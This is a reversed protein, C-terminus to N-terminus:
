TTKLWAKTRSLAPQCDKAPPDSPAGSSAERMKKTRPECSPRPPERSPPAKRKQSHSLHIEDLGSGSPFAPISADVGQIDDLGASPPTALLIPGIGSAIMSETDVHVDITTQVTISDSMMGDTATGEIEIYQRLETTDFIDDPYTASPQMLVSGHTQLTALIDGLGSSANEAGSNPLAMPPGLRPSLKFMDMDELNSSSQGEGPEQDPENEECEEQETAAKHDEDQKVLGIGEKMAGDQAFVDAYRFQTVTPLLMDRTKELVSRNKKDKDLDMATGLERVYARIREQWAHQAVRRAHMGHVSRLARAIEPVQQRPLVPPVDPEVATELHRRTTKTEAKAAAKAKVAAEDPKPKKEKARAILEDETKKAWARAKKSGEIAKDLEKKEQEDMTMSGKDDTDTEDEDSFTADVVSEETRELPYKLSTILPSKEFIEMIERTKATKEVTTTTTAGTWPKTKNWTRRVFVGANWARADDEIFIQDKKETGICTGVTIAAKPAVEDAWARMEWHNETDLLRALHVSRARDFSKPMRINLQTLDSMQLQPAYETWFKQWAIAELAYMDEREQVHLLTDDEDGDGDDLSLHGTPPFSRRNSALEQVVHVPESMKIRKGSAMKETSFDFSPSSYTWDVHRSFPCCDPLWPCIPRPCTAIKINADNPQIENIAALRDQDLPNRMDYMISLTSVLSVIHKMNADLPAETWKIWETEDRISVWYLNSQSANRRGILIHIPIGAQKLADFQKAVEKMFADRDTSKSSHHADWNRVLEAYLSDPDSHGPIVFCDWDFIPQWNFTDRVWKYVSHKIHGPIHNSDLLALPHVPDNSKEQWEPSLAYLEIDKHSTALAHLHNLMDWLNSTTMGKLYRDLEIGHRKSPMPCDSVRQHRNWDPRVPRSGESSEYFDREFTNSHDYARIEKPRTPNREVLSAPLTSKQDSWLTGNHAKEYADDKSKKAAAHAADRVMDDDLKKTASQHKRQTSYRQVWAGFDLGISKIPSNGAKLIDVLRDMAFYVLRLELRVVSDPANKILLHPLGCVYDHPNTPDENGRVSLTRLNACQPLLKEVLSLSFSATSDRFDPLCLWTLRLVLAKVATDKIELLEAWPHLAVPQTHGVPADCLDLALVQTLNSAIWQLDEATMWHAVAVRKVWAKRQSEQVNLVNKKFAEWREKSTPYGFPTGNVEFGRHHEWLRQCKWQRAYTDTPGVGHWDWFTFPEYYTAEHAIDKMKHKGLAIRLAASAERGAMLCISKTITEKLPWPGDEREFKRDKLKDRSMRTSVVPKSHPAM